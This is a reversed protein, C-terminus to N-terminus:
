HQNVVSNNRHRAWFANEFVRKCDLLGSQSIYDNAPATFRVDLEVVVHIFAFLRHPLDLTCDIFQM